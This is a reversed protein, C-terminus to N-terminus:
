LCLLISIWHLSLFLGWSSLWYHPKNKIIYLIYSTNSPNKIALTLNLNLIDVTPFILAWHHYWYRVPLIVTPALLDLSILFHCQLQTTMFWGYSLFGNARTCLSVPPFIISTMSWFSCWKLDSQPDLNWIAIGFPKIKHFTNNLYVDTSECEHSGKHLTICVLARSILTPHEWMFLRFSQM